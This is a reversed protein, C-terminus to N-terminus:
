CRKDYLLVIIILEETACKEKIPYKKRRRLRQKRKLLHRVFSMFVLFSFTWFSCLHVFNVHYLSCCHSVALKTLARTARRLVAWDLCFLFLRTGGELTCRWAYHYFLKQPTPLEASSHSMRKRKGKWEGLLFASNNFIFSPPYLFSFFIYSPLLLILLLLTLLPFPPPLSSIQHKEHAM